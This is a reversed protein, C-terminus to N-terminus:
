EAVVDVNMTRVVSSHGATDMAQFTAVYSGPALNEIPFRMGVPIVPNGPQITRGVNVLGTDQAVAGTKRDQIKLDLGVQPPTKSLLLPEYVEVYFAGKESKKIRATGTPTIEVGDAVLPTRGEMLQADLGTSDGSVKRFEKSFAIGSLSFQKGDWTDVALPIEMKGFKQGSNYIVKLTYKGPAIEFQNEYHLPQGQFAELEKKDKFDVKVTDSFRAAATGDPKYAIGLINIEGHLKGRVKDTKIETSPIEMAMNVRAINPSTYFFPDAINGAGAEPAGGAHAEMQKEIPDGALQDQPPVNCYGSRARVITGAREVKVHLTHCSGEDSEAPTYGLLYYQNLDRAIKELGGLLDNTNTIVFGGTGNALMYMVQQNDNISTPLQPILTRTQSLPNYISPNNYYSGSNGGGSGGRSGGGGTGTGGGTGGRGGGGTGGGGRGGGGGGGTGGGGGGGRGGGGGGGGGTGGGGGGGTGGGGGGRQGAFAEALGGGLAALQASGIDAYSVFSAPVFAVSPFGAPSGTLGGIPRTGPMTPVAPGTPMMTPSPAVLGRVDIPYVAVNAKNCENIAATVEPMHEDNVAYGSTLLILTKRGPVGALNKALSKLALLSTRIGFDAATNGLSPMTGTTAVDLTTDEVPSVTSMKLGSVARKLREASATFNQAIQLTGGFNVVAMYMNRGANKDIFQGAAARARSQEDASMTSNDFFLIMYRKAPNQAVTADTEMSFSNITQEKKDEWVKFDRATLDSIYNGKKDTVVADVLVVRTEAKIVPMSGAPASPQSAAAPPAQAGLVAACLAGTLLMM